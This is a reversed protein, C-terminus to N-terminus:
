WLTYGGDIVLSQGTMFASANSALYILTPGLEEPMAYRAQPAALIWDQRYAPDDLLWAMETKIYGPSIANVRINFPAWEAALSRTLHIVAAKSSNYSAQEQPKNVISGSISAINVINGGQGAAIMARGAAQACYFVGNVNVDMVSRWEEVTTEEAARHICIGANNVLVDVGGWAEVVSAVMAAASAPDTVELPLALTRVGHRARVDEAVANLRQEDRAAVAVDAGAGALAHAFSEGIGRSGGTVICRKGTLKFQDLITM